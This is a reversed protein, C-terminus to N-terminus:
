ESYEKTVTALNQRTIQLIAPIQSILMILIAAAVAIILSRMSIDPPSMSIVDEASSSMAEFFKLSIYKGLPIGIAVGIVAIIINELSIMFSLMRDGLGVARMTAMERSRQTVNVMVGNFIIAAGLATGMALMIGIMVWFFSMQDNIMKRTDATLEISAVQPINYIREITYSDPPGDFTVM